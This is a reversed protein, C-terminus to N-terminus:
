KESSIKSYIILPYKSNLSHFSNYYGIKDEIIQSIKFYILLIVIFLFRILLLSKKTVNIYIMHKNYGFENKLKHIKSYIYINHDFYVYQWFIYNYLM